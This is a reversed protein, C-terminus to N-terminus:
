GDPQRCRGRYHRWGGFDRDGPSKCSGYDEGPLVTYTVTESTTGTISSYNLVHGSNLTVEMNAGVGTMTVSESFTVTIDIAPGAAPGYTGSGATTTVSSITPATSDIAINKNDALNNGAPMVLTTTNGFQDTLTAGGDLGLGTVNLDPSTDPAAITYMGVGTNSNSFPAITISDGTDLTVQINGGALTVPESFTLVVDITQADGYSGNAATSTIATVTGGDSDVAIAKNDGLNQGAPLSLDTNNGAADALTGGSLSIGGPSVTLDGTTQLPGVTYTGSASTSPGFVPISVTGGSDLVIELTGGALTVNETFNVTVDISAGVGYMANPTVSTISQIAPQQTDITM